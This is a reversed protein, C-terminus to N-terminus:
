FAGKWGFPEQVNSQKAGKANQIPQRSFYGLSGSEDDKGRCSQRSSRARKAISRTAFRIHGGFRSLCERDTKGWHKKLNTDVVLTINGRKTLGNSQIKPLPIKWSTPILIMPTRVMTSPQPKTQTANLM